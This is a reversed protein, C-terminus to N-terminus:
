SHIYTLQLGEHTIIVKETSYIVIESAIEQQVTNDIKYSHLLRYYFAVDVALSVIVLRVCSFGFDESGKLLDM